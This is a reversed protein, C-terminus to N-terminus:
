RPKRIIELITEEPARQDQDVHPRIQNEVPHGARYYAGRPRRREGPRRAFAAVPLWLLLQSGGGIQSPVTPDRGHAARSPAISLGARKRSGGDNVREQESPEFIIALTGAAPTFKM